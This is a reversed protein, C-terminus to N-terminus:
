QPCSYTNNPESDHVIYKKRKVKKVLQAINQSLTTFPYGPVRPYYCQGRTRTISVVVRNSARVLLRTGPYGRTIPQRTHFLTGMVVSNQSGVPSLGSM